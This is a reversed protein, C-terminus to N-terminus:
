QSSSEQYERFSLNFGEPPTSLLQILRNFAPLAMGRQTVEPLLRLRESSVEEDASRLRLVNDFMIAAPSCPQPRPGLM